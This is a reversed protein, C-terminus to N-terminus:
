KTFTDLEESYFLIQRHSFRSKIRKEFNDIIDIKQSTAVFAFKVKANQLMDLIKYLLSQKSNEIYYEVNEFIFLVSVDPHTEFYKKM